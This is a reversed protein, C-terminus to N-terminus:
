LYTDSLTYFTQDAEAEKLALALDSKTIKLWRKAQDIEDHKRNTKYKRARKVRIEEKAWAALLESKVYSPNNLSARVSVTIDPKIGLANM